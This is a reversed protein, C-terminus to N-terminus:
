KVRKFYIIQEDYYGDEDGTFTTWIPDIDNCPILSDGKKYYYSSHNYDDKTEFITQGKYEGVEKDRSTVEVDSFIDSWIMESAGLKQISFSLMDFLTILHTSPSYSYPMSIDGTQCEGDKKFIYIDEDDKNSVEVGVTKGDFKYEVKTIRWTGVLDGSTSNNGDAKDCSGLAIATFVAVALTFLRRM